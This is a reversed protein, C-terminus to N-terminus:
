ICRGCGICLNKNFKVVDGSGDSCFKVPCVAICQHCNTCNDENIGIVEILDQRM